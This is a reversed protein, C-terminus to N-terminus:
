GESEGAIKRALDLAFRMGQLESFRRVYTLHDVLLQKTLDSERQSIQKKLQEILKELKSM